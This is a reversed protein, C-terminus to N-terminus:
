LTKPHDSHKEYPTCVISPLQDIPSVSFFSRIHVLIQLESSIWALQDVPQPLLVEELRWHRESPQKLEFTGWINDSTGLWIFARDTVSSVIKVSVKQKSTM